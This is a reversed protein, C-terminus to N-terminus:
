VLFLQEAGALNAGALVFVLVGTLLLILKLLLAGRERDVQSEREIAIAKARARETYYDYRM